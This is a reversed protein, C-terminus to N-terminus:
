GLSSEPRTILGSSAYRAFDAVLLRGASKTGLMGLGAQALMAFHEVHFMESEAPFAM